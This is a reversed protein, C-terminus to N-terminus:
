WTVQLYLYLMVLFSDIKQAHFPDFQGTHCLGSSASFHKLAEEKKESENGMVPVCSLNTFSHSLM